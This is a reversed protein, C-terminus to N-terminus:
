RHSGPQHAAGRPPQVRSRSRAVTRSVVRDVLRLTDKECGCGRQTLCPRECNTEARSRPATSYLTASEKQRRKNRKNFFKKRRRSQFQYLSVASPPNQRGTSLSGFQQIGDVGIFRGLRRHH